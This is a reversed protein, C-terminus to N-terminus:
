KSSEGRPSPRARASDERYPSIHGGDDEDEGDIDDSGEDYMGSPTEGVWDEDPLESGFNWVDLMTQDGRNSAAVCWQGKFVVQWVGVVGTLLDRVPQGDRIDWMKLTGDSGSLVKFEDHQFCTIAGTHGNLSHRLDGTAPDWIRLTSDAAASVLSSPSLGLLGVLSTHGILTHACQGTLLNWVRVTHDM